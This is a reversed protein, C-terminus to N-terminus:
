LEKRQIAMGEISPPDPITQQRKFVGAQQPLSHHQVCHEGINAVSGNVVARKTLRATVVAIIGM